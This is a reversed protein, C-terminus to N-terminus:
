KREPPPAAAEMPTVMVDALSANLTDIKALLASQELKAKEISLSLIKAELERRRTRLLETEAEAQARLAKERQLTSSEGDLQGLLNQKEVLLDNYRNQLAHHDTKLRTFESLLLSQKPGWDMETNIGAASLVGEYGDNPDDPKPEYLMEKASQCGALVFVPLLLWTRLRMSM